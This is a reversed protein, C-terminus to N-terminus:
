NFTSWRKLKNRKNKRAQNVHTDSVTGNEILIDIMALLDGIEEEL